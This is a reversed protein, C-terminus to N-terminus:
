NIKYKNQKYILTGFINQNENLNCVCVCVTECEFGVHFVIPRTQKIKNIQTHM